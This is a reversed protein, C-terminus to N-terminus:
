KITIGLEHALYPAASALQVQDITSGKLSSWGSLEYLESTRFDVNKCKAQAFAVRELTCSEFSVDHLQAGIFDAEILTCDIFVVRRLDGARFNAMDLKCGRFTVDHLSTTNFDTGGLRCNAFEARNLGGSSINAGSFDSGKFV